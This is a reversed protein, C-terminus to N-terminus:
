LSYRAARDVMCSTKVTLAFISARSPSVWRSFFLSCSRYRISSFPAFRRWLKPGIQGSTIGPKPSAGVLLNEYFIAVTAM